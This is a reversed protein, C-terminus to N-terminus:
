KVLLISQQRWGEPLTLEGDRANGGSALTHAADMVRAADLKPETVDVTVFFVREFGPADDIEYSEPLHIPGGHALRADSTETAPFHLTAVGAGDISVVVGQQAGKANYKVQLQDGASVTAETALREPRGDSVRDVMLVPAGKLLIREPEGGDAAPDQKSEGADVLPDAM